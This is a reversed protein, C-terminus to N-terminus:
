MGAEPERNLGAQSAASGHDLRSNQRADESHNGHPYLISLRDLVIFSTSAIRSASLPSAITFPM